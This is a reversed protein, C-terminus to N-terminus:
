KGDGRFIITIATGLIGLYSRTWNIISLKREKNM